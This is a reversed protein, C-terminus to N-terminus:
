DAPRLKRVEDDSPLLTDGPAFHYDVMVGKGDEVALKGVYLGWTAQHDIKRFVTKGDPTDFELGEFAKIMSETDTKGGSAAVGAAIAKITAYGIISGFRLNEKGYKAQYETLFTQHAPTKISYWPYGTVVWNKPIEDRLPELYEPQGTIISYVPMNDGLFGRTTGERVFQALDTGFLANFTAEPKADSLAQVVSGADIKGFPPAQETVFEVDPQRQKMLKKFVNAASTGFEYNPYILAWRKKKLKVADDVLSAVLMYTSADLRFTYRNGVSWVINDSLAETILTFRRKQKAYDTLATGIHAYFAGALIDVKERTVLDEAQRIAEGPNANDDRTILELKRGAVGGAANIQDIALQMGKKYGDTFVPQSKYSNIEGIKIPEEARAAASSLVGVAALSSLLVCRLSVKNIM